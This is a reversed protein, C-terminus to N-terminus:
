SPKSVEVLLKLGVCVYYTKVSEGLFFVICYSKFREFLTFVDHHASMLELFFFSQPISLLDLHM